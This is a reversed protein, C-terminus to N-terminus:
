AKQLTSLSLPDRGHTVSVHSWSVNRVVLLLFTQVMAQAVLQCQHGNDPGFGLQDKECKSAILSSTIRCQECAFAGHM